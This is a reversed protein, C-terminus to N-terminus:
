EAFSYAVSELEAVISGYRTTKRCRSRSPVFCFVATTRRVSSGSHFWLKVKLM